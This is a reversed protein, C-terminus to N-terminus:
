MNQTLMESSDSVIVYDTIVKHFGCGGLNYGWGRMEGNELIYDATDTGVRLQSQFRRIDGSPTIELLKIDLSKPNKERPNKDIEM